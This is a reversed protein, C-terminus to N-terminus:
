EVPEEDTTTTTTVKWITYYVTTGDTSTRTRHKSTFERARELKSFYAVTHAWMIEGRKDEGVEEVRYKITKM